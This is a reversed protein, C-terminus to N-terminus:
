REKKQRAEMRRVLLSLPLTIFLYCLGAVTLPTLSATQNGLDRGYKTLEFGGASIGLIFVLSSDKILLILENTLPPIVVRLAQPLVVKRTAAGATMGLSRAAEVQGKSVAQIGARITEAMYASAVIGLGLWVTGYPDFPIVLGPFPISLTGFVLLVLLAPLGRFFEIWATAIWRYPGVSSLRMLALITGLILGIVFAGVTYLLTNKVATGLGSTFTLKIDEANFFSTHVAKWDVTLILALVVLVLVAYQIWRIRQARRRPSLKNKVPAPTESTATTSM